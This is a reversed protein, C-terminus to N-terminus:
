AEPGSDREQVIENKGIRKIIVETSSWEPIELYQSLLGESGCSRGHRERM